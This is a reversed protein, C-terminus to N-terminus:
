RVGTREWRRRNLEESTRRFIARAVFSPRRPAGEVGVRQRRELARWESLGRAEPWVGLAFEVLDDVNVEDTRGREYARCARDLAQRALRRRAADHLGTAGPVTGCVDAFAADFADRRGQLDFLIGAHVTRQQSDGHVRYYGQPPGNVRGVDAITAMQMWLELDYTHPLDAPRPGAQRTVSTRMVVEPSSVPNTATRCCAALWRHGQEITWSVAPSWTPHTPETTFHMPRGTVFGVEPHAELLATARGLAGPALLDDADLKVLYEGDVAALGENISAIHGLNAEHRIVRVPKGADILAATVMPTEDTSADDVILV